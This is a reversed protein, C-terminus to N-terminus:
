LCLSERTHSGKMWVDKSVGLIDSFIPGRVSGRKEIDRFVNVFTEPGAAGDVITTGEIIFKPIGHVGLKTLTHLATEIEHRGENGNLFSLIEEESIIAEQTHQQKLLIKNVTDTSVKALRPKDNLSHGEVFYYVNLRDYVAESVHLGFRKGVHQILRHSAMTNAALRDLNFHPIGASLGRGKLDHHQKQREWGVKGGWKKLLRSRNSEIYPQSEDYEPELFYPV